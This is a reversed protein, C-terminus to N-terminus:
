ASWRSAEKPQAAPCALYFSGLAGVPAEAALTLEREAAADAHRQAHTRCLVPPAGDLLVSEFSHGGIRCVTWTGPRLCRPARCFGLADCARRLALRAADYLRRLTPPLKM